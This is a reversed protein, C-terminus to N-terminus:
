RQTQFVRLMIALLLATVDGFGSPNSEAGLRNAPTGARGAIRALDAIASSLRDSVPPPDICELLDVRVM